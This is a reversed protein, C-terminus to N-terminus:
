ANPCLRSTIYSGDSKPGIADLWGDGNCGIRKRHGCISCRNEEIHGEQETHWSQCKECWPKFAM